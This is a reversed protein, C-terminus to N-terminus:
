CVFICSCFFLNLFSWFSDGLANMPYSLRRSCFCSCCCCCFCAPTCCGCNEEDLLPDVSKLILRYRGGSDFASAGRCPSGATPLPALWPGLLCRGPNTRRCDKQKSAGVRGGGGRTRAREIGVRCLEFSTLLPLMREGLGGAGRGPRRFNCVWSVVVDRKNGRGRGVCRTPRAGAGGARGEGVM